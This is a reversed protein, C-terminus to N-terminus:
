HDWVKHTYYIDKYLMGKDTGHQQLAHMVRREQGLLLQVQLLQHGTNDHGEQAAPAEVLSVWLGDGLGVVPGSQGV